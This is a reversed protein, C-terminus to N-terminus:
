LGKRDRLSVPPALAAAFRHAIFYKGRNRVEGELSIMRGRRKMLEERVRENGAKLRYTRGRAVFFGFIEPSERLAESAPHFTGRLTKEPVQSDGQRRGALVNERTAEEAEAVAEDASRAHINAIAATLLLIACIHKWIIRNESRCV